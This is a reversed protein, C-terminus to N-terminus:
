ERSQSRRRQPQHRGQREEMLLGVMDMVKHLVQSLEEVERDRRTPPAPGPTPGMAGLDALDGEEGEPYGQGLMPAAPPPLNGKGLAAQHPLGGEQDEEFALTEQSVM